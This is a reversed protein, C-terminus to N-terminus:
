KVTKKYISEYQNQKDASLNNFYTTIRAKLFKQDFKKLKPLDKATLTYVYALFEREDHNTIPKDGSRQLVHLYEHGLSRVFYAFSINGRMVDKLLSKPIHVTQFKGKGIEGETYAHEGTEDISIASNKKVTADNYLNYATNLFQIAEMYKGESVLQEFKIKNEGDDVLSRNNNQGSNLISAKETDTLNEGVGYADMFGQWITGGMGASISLERLFSEIAAEREMSELDGWDKLYERRDTNLDNGLDDTEHLEIAKMGDPDIFRLPNDYAYNYPSWRRSVESLPDIIHWRGIQADYMRAGYDMWELGSGDIFEKTQKEKGNYLYKNEILGLAKSSIAAMELGFPYYHTEELIPGPVHTVALNDFYVPLNSENSVFIYLYGNKTVSVPNNIFFDHLKYGGGAMVPDSGSSVYKLQDDFLIYNVFAKANNSGPNNNSIFNSLSTNNSGIGSVDSSNIAGKASNVSGSAVFSTLLEGVALALPSGAGGGPMTYFSECTFRVQDGSMVKLVIGLGTKENTLGGHTRYLKNEFSGQTAGTTSKDIRRANIIDYFVQENQYATDEVSASPYLNIKNEETLVMRVNGLHDKIFYDFVFENSDKRYRARGEEHGFYQLTDNRYEFGAIYTTVSTTSGEVVTKKLKTGAADYTYTITGKPSWLGDRVDIQQPLNLHNYTIGGGSTVDLGTTGVIRKNLDAVLNGNKDYGYDNGTTNYDTFDGLHYNAAGISADESVSALKNSNPYYNYTLWDVFINGTLKWGWQKMALINGNADYASLPDSGDGMKVSYNMEDRNWGGGGANNQEFLAQMFRDAADYNFDYKRRIGDGASEWVMGTINGSLQVADYNEGSSNTQKDYGLDFAFKKTGTGNSSLESRNLGLLWGRINYDYSLTELGNTGYGPALLKSIMRGLENYSYEVINKDSAGDVKKVIGTIRGSHDYNLKTLVTHSQANTGSKQHGLHTRLISGNFSFQTTVIDTGGSQNTAKAQVVRGREDYLPLSYLYTSTGLILTKSGTVAGRIRQSIEIQQAYEPFSNYTTYFNTSNINEVSLSSSLPNGNSSLWSYDDYFSESLITYTGTLTPYDSSVEAAAQITARSSTNVISGSKVPRSQEDYKVFLWQTNVRLNADQTMVVRGLQDYVIYSKDKGPVLKMIMRGKSDYYYSYCLGKNIEANGSLNWSVAMLAEVAKPSIVSRLNNMEDYVYYTCLWGTHGSSPSNQLQVKLLVVKGMEDKFVVKKTEKEDTVEEVLLSGPQYVMSTSPVDDESNIDITWLRVSDLATNARQSFSKGVNSGTWSDGEATVKLVRQIPSADFFTKSFFADEDPYQARFFSSDFYLATHKFKGDDSNSSQQTYPLYQIPVREYVDYQVPAVQDKKLPSSQKVVSQIPRGLYDFYNTAISVDEPLASLVVLSSDQIPKKPVLVREYMKSQAPNYLQYPTQAKVNLVILIFCVLSLVHKRMLM